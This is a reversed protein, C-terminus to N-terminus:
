AGELALIRAELADNRAKEAQLENYIEQNSKILYPLFGEYNVYAQTTGWSSYDPDQTPDNPDPSVPKTESPNADKSPHVLFRLEPADYWVDQAILGAEFQEPIDTDNENESLRHKKIYTQPKLKLLTDTANTIFTEDRKLRDDSSHITSGGKKVTTVNFFDFEDITQGDRGVYISKGTYPTFWNCGSAWAYWRFESLSTDTRSISLQNGPHNIRLMKTFSDFRATGRVDLQAEPVKGIGVATDSIVMSRGTRGLNYLKKVESPELAVDYMKLNSIYVPASSTTNADDSKIQFVANNPLASTDEPAPDGKVTLEQGDVYCKSTARSGAHTVTMMFWKGNSIDSPPNWERRGGNFAIRFDSGHRYDFSRQTGASGSPNFEIQIDSDGTVKAWLTITYPAGSATNHGSVNGNIIDTSADFVFAKDAASYTAGVMTGHNGRGSIDTPSSNVTTDFDVVLKEPRPTETDVDYRSIRPVDLSRTLSLSGKDLTTPGPTGFLRWEEIAVFSADTSPYAATNNKTVVIAFHSYSDQTDLSFRKIDAQSTMGQGTRSDIQKWNVNDKSGYIIFDSPSDAYQFDTGSAYNWPALSYGKLYIEYPMSLQLAAGIPAGEHHKETGEYVGTATNYDGGSIDPGNLWSNDGNNADTRDKNFAKWAHYKSTGISGGHSTASAKFVGHGEIYTDFDTMGRPPYEQLREDGALELQGSPETVGVGLHGKYLTVQSKSGLFYDKQYDYLEKIQDANLAKSYLRFNAISGFFHKGGVDTADAGSGNTPRKGLQLQSNAPLNLVGSPTADQSKFTCEIGNLYVKRETSPSTKGSISVALHYWNNAPLDYASEAFGPVSYHGAHQGDWVQIRWDQNGNIRVELFQNDTQDFAPNAITFLVDDGWVTPNFWLAASIEPKANAGGTLSTPLTGTKITQTRSTSGGFVWAKYTSDFTIDSGPSSITADANGVKDTISGGSYDQGDYYVELQTGTTAPVNYVSKLTTDISGSGEEYGYFELLTFFLSDDRSKIALFAYHTYTVQSNIELRVGTTTTYLENSLDNFTGLLNWTGDVGINSGLIVIDRPTGLQNSANRYRVYNLKIPNPLQISNWAGTYTDSSITTLSSGNTGNYVDDNTSDYSDTTATKWISNDDGDYLKYGERSEMQSSSREVVYGSDSNATMAVEPYKRLPRDHPGTYETVVNSDVKIQSVNSVRTLHMNGVVDLSEKPTDTGVGVRGSVNDVFLNSSGVELNSSVYANGSVHLTAEPTTTGVGVRSNVTDVFLNSSGVELNSTVALGGYLSVNSTGDSILHGAVVKLNQFRPTGTGAFFNIYEGDPPTRTVDDKYVLVRTGDVTVTFYQKEYTLYVKGYTTDLNPITATTLDSTGYKLTLTTGSFTLTYGVEADGTSTNRFNFSSGIGKIEFTAVFINPMKLGWQKNDDYEESDEELITNKDFTNLVTDFGEVEDVQLRGVRLTANPITLIGQPPQISM